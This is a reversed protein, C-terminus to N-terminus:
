SITDLKSDKFHYTKSYNVNIKNRTKMKMEAKTELVFISFLNCMRNCEVLRYLLVLM